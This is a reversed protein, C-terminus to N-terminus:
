TLEAWALEFEVTYHAMNGPNIVAGTDMTPFGWKHRRPEQVGWVQLIRVKPAGSLATTVNEMGNHGNLGNPGLCCTWVIEALDNAKGWPPRQKNQNTAWCHATVVPCRYGIDDRSHGRGTISVQIFGKDAWTSQDQPLTTGIGVGALDTQARLWAIAVQESNNHKPAM